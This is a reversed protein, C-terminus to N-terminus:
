KRRSDTFQSRGDIPICPPPFCGTPGPTGATPPLQGFVSETFFPSAVLASLLLIKKVLKM